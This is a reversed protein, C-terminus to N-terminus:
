RHGFHPRRRPRTLIGVCLTLLLTPAGDETRARLSCGGSSAPPAAPKSAPTAPTAPTAPPKAPVPIVDPVSTSAPAPDATLVFGAARVDPVDGGFPPPPKRRGSSDIGGEGKGGPGEYRTNALTAACGGASADLHIIDAMKTIGTVTSVTFIRPVQKLCPKGKAALYAKVADDNGTVGAADASPVVWLGPTWGQFMQVDEGPHVRVVHTDPTKSNYAPFGVVVMGAPVGDITFTYNVRTEGDPPPVDAMANASALTITLATLTARLNLM